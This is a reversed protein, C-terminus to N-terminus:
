GFRLEGVAVQVISNITVRVRRGQHFCISFMCQLSPIVSNTRAYAYRDVVQGKDFHYFNDFVTVM